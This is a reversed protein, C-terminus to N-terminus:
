SEQGEQGGGAVILDGENNADTHLRQKQGNGNNNRQHARKKKGIIFPLLLLTLPKKATFYDVWYLRALKRTM